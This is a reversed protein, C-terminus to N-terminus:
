NQPTKWQIMFQVFNVWTFNAVHSCQFHTKVDLVNQTSAGFIFM